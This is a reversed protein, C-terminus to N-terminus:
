ALRTERGEKESPGEPCHLNLYIVSILFERVPGLQSLHDFHYSLSVLVVRDRFGQHRLGALIMDGKNVVAADDFGLLVIGDLQLLAVFDVPHMRVRATSLTPTLASYNGM